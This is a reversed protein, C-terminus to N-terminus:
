SVNKPNTDPILFWIPIHKQVILGKKIIQILTLSMSDDRVHQRYSCKSCDTSQM